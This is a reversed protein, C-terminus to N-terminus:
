RSAAAKELIADVALDENPFLAISREDATYAEVGRATRLVFGATKGDRLIVSAIATKNSTIPTM